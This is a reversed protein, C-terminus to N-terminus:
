QLPFVEDKCQATDSMFPEVDRLCVGIAFPLEWVGADPEEKPGGGTLSAFHGAKEAKWAICKVGDGM